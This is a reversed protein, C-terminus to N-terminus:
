VTLRRVTAYGGALLAVTLAALLGTLGGITLTTFFHGVRRWDDRGGIILLVATLALAQAAIFSLLGMVNWRRYVIGFWMGWALVLALGAFSTLWSLYWPGALLYPVRFFHLKLGWGGTGREILQLVTLALGYVASLAVALLAAGTYFSRRSVGLALAFPLQRSILLAGAVILVVYIGSLAGGYLAQGPRHPVNAVIVLTILFDLTLVLWPSIVFMNRDTLQYRAVKIWTSM